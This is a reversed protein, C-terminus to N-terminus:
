HKTDDQPGGFSRAKTAFLLSRWEVGGLNEAQTESHCTSCSSQEQGLKADKATFHERSFNDFRRSYIDRSEHACSLVYCPVTM